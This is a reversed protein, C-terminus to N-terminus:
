INYCVCLNISSHVVMYCLSIYVLLYRMPNQNKGMTGSADGGGYFTAHADSWGGGYGHITKSMTLFVVLCVGLFDMEQSTVAFSVCNSILIIKALPFLFDNIVKHKCHGLLNSSLSILKSFV